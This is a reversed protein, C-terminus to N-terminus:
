DHSEGGAELAAVERELDELVGREKARLLADRYRAPEPTKLDESTILALKSTVARRQSVTLDWFRRVLDSHKVVGKGSAPAASLMADWLHEFRFTAPTRVDFEFSDFYRQAAEGIETTYQIPVCKLGEPVGQQQLRSLFPRVKHKLFNGTGNGDNLWIAHDVEVILKEVDASVAPQQAGALLPRVKGWKERLSQLYDRMRGIDVHTSPYRLARDMEAVAADASVAPEPPAFGELMYKVMAEAQEATFLNTGVPDHEAEYPTGVNYKPEFSIGADPHFDKPLRWCLFRDVMHKVLDPSAPEPPPAAALKDPMAKIHVRGGFYHWDHKRGTEKTAERCYREAEEKTMDYMGLSVGSAYVEPDCADPDPEHAVAEGGAQGSLAARCDSLLEELHRIRNAAWEPDQKVLQHITVPQDDINRFVRASSWIPHEDPLNSEIRRILEESM